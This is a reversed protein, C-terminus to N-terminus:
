PAILLGWPRGCGWRYLWSGGLDMRVREQEIEGPCNNSVVIKGLYVSWLLDGSLDHRNVVMEFCCKVL